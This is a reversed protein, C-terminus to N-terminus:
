YDLVVKRCARCLFAPVPKAAFGGRISEDEKGSVILVRKPQPSWVLPFKAGLYGEEMPAGCIPCNM